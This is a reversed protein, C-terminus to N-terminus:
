CHRWCVGLLVLCVVAHAHAYGLKLGLTPIGFHPATAQVQSCRALSYTQLRPHCLLLLCCVTSHCLFMRRCTASCVACSGLSSSLFGLAREGLVWGEGVVAGSSSRSWARCGWCQRQSLVLRRCCVLLLDALPLLLLARINVTPHKAYTCYVIYWSGTWDDYPLCVAPSQGACVLIAGVTKCLCRGGVVSVSGLHEDPAGDSVM